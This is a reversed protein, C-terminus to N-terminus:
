ANENEIMKVSFRKMLFIQNDKQELVKVLMAVGYGM